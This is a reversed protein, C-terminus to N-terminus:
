RMRAYNARYKRYDMRKDLHNEYICEMKLIKDDVYGYMLLIYIYYSTSLNEGSLLLVMLLCLLAQVIIDGSLKKMFKCVGVLFLSGTFMGYCAYMYLITNTNHTASESASLYEAFRPGIEATGIGWIPYEFLIRLNAYISGFRSVTSDNYPDSLKTFSYLLQESVGSFAFITVAVCILFITRKIRRNEQSRQAFLALFLVVMSLIGTTSTTTLIATIYVVIRIISRKLHGTDCFLYFCLALNLFMQYVGPERFIGFNRLFFTDVLSYKSVVSLGLCYFEMDETNVIVPAAKVIQPIFIAIGFCILSSTALFFMLKEFYRIFDKRSVHGVVLIGCLVAFCQSIANMLNGQRPALVLTLFFGLCLFVAVLVCQRSLHRKGKIIYVACMVLAWLYPSYRAIMTAMKNSNTGILLTDPSCLIFLFVSICGLFEKRREQKSSYIM